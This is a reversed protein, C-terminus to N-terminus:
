FAVLTWIRSALHTIIPERKIQNQPWKIVFFATETARILWLLLLLLKTAGRTYLLHAKILWVHLNSTGLRTRTTSIPVDSELIYFTFRCCLVCIESGGTSSSRTKKKWYTQKLNCPDLWIQRSLDTSCIFPGILDFSKQRWAKKQHHRHRWKEQCQFFFTRIESELLTFFPAM